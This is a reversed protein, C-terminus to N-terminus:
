QMEASRLHQELEAMLRPSTWRQWGIYKRVVNGQGDILFTEPLALVKYRRKVQQGPDLLTPVEIAYTNYLEQIPEWSTDVSVALMQFPRDAFLRNLEVMDPMEEVCGDCWTAWFNLFVLQNRYDGLAVEQGERDKLTFDPAVSGVLTPGPAQLQEYIVFSALLGVVSFFVLPKKM